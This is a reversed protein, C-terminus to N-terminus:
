KDQNKQVYSIYELGDDGIIKKQEVELLDDHMQLDNKLKLKQDNIFKQLDLFKKYYFKFDSINNLLLFVMLTLILESFGIM